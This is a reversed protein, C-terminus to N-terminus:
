ELLRLMTELGTADELEDDFMCVVLSKRGDGQDQKSLDVLISYKTRNISGTEEPLIEYDQAEEVRVIVGSAISVGPSIGLINVRGGMIFKSM